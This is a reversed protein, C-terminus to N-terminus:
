RSLRIFTGIAALVSAVPGVYERLIDRRRAVIIQDGSQVTVAAESPDLMNVTRQESRRILRVSEVKGRETIGGAISVAEALTTEMPLRYLNPQRVEGGVAVKLLPVAVFQPSAEYRSLVEALRQTLEARTAGDVRVSQFLPHQISGDESIQFEGSLEPNRWVTIRVADGPRVVAEQAYSSSGSALVGVLALTHIKM